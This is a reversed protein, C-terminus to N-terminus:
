ANAPQAAGQVQAHVAALAAAIQQWETANPDRKEAAMQKLSQYAAIAEPVAKLVGEFIAALISVTVPDM